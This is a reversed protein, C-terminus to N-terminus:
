VQKQIVLSKTFMRLTILFDAVDDRSRNTLRNQVVLLLMDRIDNIWLRPFDGEKFKYLKKDARRVVIEELYGYGHKRMVSVYTVTSISAALTMLLNQTPGKLLTKDENWDPNTPEQPRSPKTFWACRSASETWPEDNDNGQNGKQGQPTDTDGVKFEPEEVHVYKRSSKPQSKTSKSSAKALNVQNLSEQIMKEIMPPAFNSVEEPLIQPLQNKVQETIRDTLSALLFNMFEERTAGMRTDLHDDVLLTVQTHLPDNKLEAVDKELAIVRDNFRFVSDFDPISPPINTTENTPLPSPTSSVPISLLTSTNIRPVDHHVHVDLPSVTEADVPPIDSFNLFKSGLDSSRSSSTVPFETKKKNTVHADKVVQEQTIELNEKEQQADTMRVDAKKDQVDDS